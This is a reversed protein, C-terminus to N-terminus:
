QGWPSAYRSTRQWITKLDSLMALFENEGDGLFMDNGRGPSRETFYSALIRHHPVETITLEPNLQVEKWISSSEMAGERMSGVQGTQKFGNMRLAAADNTRMLKIMKRARDNGRFEIRRLYQQVFSQYMQVTKLYIEEAAERSVSNNAMIRKLVGDYKNGFVEVGKQITRIEGNPTEGWWYRSVDAKRTKKAILYKMARAAPSQSSSAQDAAWAEIVSYDGGNESIYAVVDEVISGRGRLHDFSDGNEDVAYVDGKSRSNLTKPLRELTGRDGLQTGYQAIAEIHSEVYEDVEMLRASMVMDEVEDFRAELIRTLDADSRAIRLIDDKAELLREMQAVKQMHGIGGFIRATDSNVKADQLSWLERLYQNFKPTGDTGKLAGQARYRLAGGTDIRWANGAADVMVNDLGQGAVDWNGFFADAAFDDQVQKVAADFEAGKLQGLTRADDGLYKSLKIPGSSTEYLRSPPTRVGMSRYMEESYFEERLHDPSSGRKRVFLRGEADEVLEAGTSGGLRRVVKLDDPNGDPFDRPNVDIRPKPTVPKREYSLVASEPAKSPAPARLSDDRLKLIQVKYNQAPSGPEFELVAERVFVQLEKMRTPIKANKVIKKIEDPSLDGPSNDRIWDYAADEIRRRAASGQKASLKNLALSGRRQELLDAIEDLVVETAKYGAAEALSKKTPIGKKFVLLEDVPSTTAVAAAAEDTEKLLDLFGKGKKKAEEAIEKGIVKSLAEIEADPMGADSLKGLTANYVKNSAHSQLIAENTKLLEDEDIEAALEDILSPKLSPIEGKANAISLQIQAQVKERISGITQKIKTEDTISDLVEQYFSPKLEPFNEKLEKELFDKTRDTVRVRIAADIAAQDGYSGAKKIIPIVDERIGPKLVNQVHSPLVAKMHKKADVVLILAQAILDDVSREIKKAAGAKELADDVLKGITQQTLGDGVKSIPGLKGKLALRLDGQINKIAAAKDISTKFAFSELLEDVESDISASMAGLADDLDDAFYKADTVVKSIQIRLASDDNLINAIDKVDLGLAVRVREIEMDVIGNLFNQLSKGRLGKDAIQQELGFFVDDGSLSAKLEKVMLQRKAKRVAAKAVDDSIPPSLEAKKTLNMGPIQDLADDVADVARKLAMSDFVSSTIGPISQAQPTAVLAETVPNVTSNTVSNVIEETKPLAETQAIQAARERAAPSIPGQTVPPPGPPTRPGPGAEPPAGPPLGGPPLGAERRRRERGGTTKGLKVGAPNWKGLNKFGGRKRYEKQVESWPRNLAWPPPKTGRVATEAQDEVEPYYPIESHTCNPHFPAGGNPLQSVHAIGWKEAAAQTLAFLRGIYLSCADDELPLNSSVQMVDQGHSLAANRRALVAAQRSKTRALMEAYHDIRLNRVGGSALPIEVFPLNAMNAFIHNKPLKGVKPLLVLESRAKSSLMERVLADRTQNLTAGELIGVRAITEDFARQSSRLLKAQNRITKMRDKIQDAGRTMGSVFGTSPDNLLAEISQQHVLNFGAFDRVPPLGLKKLDAEIERKNQWYLKTINRKAWKGTAEELGDFKQFIQQMKSVISARRGVDVEAVFQRGLDKVAQRYLRVLRNIENQPAADFAM